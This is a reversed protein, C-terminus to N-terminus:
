QDSHEYVAGVRRVRRSADTIRVRAVEITKGGAVVREATTTALGAHVLAVLDATTFNHARMIAESGDRSV